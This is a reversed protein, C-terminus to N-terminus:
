YNEWQKHFSAYQTCKMTNCSGPEACHLHIMHVLVHFSFAYLDVNFNLLSLHWLQKRDDRRNCMTLIKGWNLMEPTLMPQILPQILLFHSNILSLALDIQTWIQAGSYLLKTVAPLGSIEKLRQHVNSHSESINLSEEVYSKFTTSWLLFMTPSLSWSSNCLPATLPLSNRALSWKRESCLLARKRISDIRRTYCITSYLSHPNVSLCHLSLFIVHSMNASWHSNLLSHMIYKDKSDNINVKPTNAWYFVNNVGHGWM